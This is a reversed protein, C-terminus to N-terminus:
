GHSVRVGNASQSSTEGSSNPGSGAGEPDKMQPRRNLKSGSKAARELARRIPGYVDIVELYAAAAAEALDDPVSPGFPARGGRKAVERLYLCVPEGELHTRERWRMDALCIPASCNDFKGCDEPKM